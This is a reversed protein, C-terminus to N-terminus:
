QTAEGLLDRDRSVLGGVGRASSRGALILLAISTMPLYLLAGPAGRPLGGGAQATLSLWGGAAVILLVAAAPLACLPRLGMTPEKPKGESEM